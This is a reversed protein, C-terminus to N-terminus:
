TTAVTLVSTASPVRNLVAGLGKRIGGVGVRGVVRVTPGVGHADLGPQGHVFPILDIGDARLAQEGVKDLHGVGPRRIGLIHHHHVGQGALDPMHAVRAATHFAWGAGQGTIQGGQGWAADAGELDGHPRVAVDDAARDQDVLTVTALLVGRCGALTRLSLSDVVTRWTLPPGASRPM